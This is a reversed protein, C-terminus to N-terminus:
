PTVLTMVNTAGDTVGTASASLTYGSGPANIHLGTFTAVGNVATVTLTGSLAAPVSALTVAVAGRQMDAFVDTMDGTAKDVLHIREAGNTGRSAYLTGDPFFALESVYDESLQGVETAVLTTPNITVLYRENSGQGQYRASGFITGDTPDTAIGSWKEIVAGAIAVSGLSTAAGTQTDIDYLENDNRGVGLLRGGTTTEWTLGSLDFGLNGVTMVEGTAPDITSLIPSKDAAFLLGTAPDYVAAQIGDHNNFALPPLSDPTLPDVLWQCTYSNGGPDCVDADDQGSSFFLMSGANTGFDLTVDLTSSPVVNGFVDQVEVQLSFPKRAVALAPVARFALQSAGGGGGGGVTLVANGPTGQGVATIVATGASNGSAMGLTDVTAVFQNSSVWLFKVTVANSNADVAAATFQQMDGPDITATGPTVTVVDGDDPVLAILDIDPRMHKRGSFVTQHPVAQELFPRNGIRVYMARLGGTVTVYPEHVGGFVYLLDLATGHRWLLQQRELDRESGLQSLGRPGACAPRREGAPEREFALAGHVEPAPKVVGEGVMSLPETEDIVDGNGDLRQAAIPRDLPRGHDVAVDVVAIPGGRHERLDILDKRERYVLLLIIRKPLRRAIQVDAQRVSGPIALVQAPETFAEFSHERRELRVERNVQGTGIGVPLILEAPQPERQLSQPLAIAEDELREGSPFDGDRNDQGTSVREPWVIGHLYM